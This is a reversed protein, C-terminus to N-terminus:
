RERKHRFCIKYHIQERMEVAGVSNSTDTAQFYSTCDAELLM